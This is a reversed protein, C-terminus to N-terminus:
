SPILICNYYFTLHPACNPCQRLISMNVFPIVSFTKLAHAFTTAHTQALLCIDVSRDNWIYPALQFHLKIFLSLIFKQWLWHTVHMRINSHIKLYQVIHWHSQNTGDNNEIFINDSMSKFTWNICYLAISRDFMWNLSWDFAVCRVVSCQVRGTCEHIRLMHAFWYLLDIM